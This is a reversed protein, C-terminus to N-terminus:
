RGYDLLDAWCSPVAEPGGQFPVYVRVQERARTLAVYLLRAEERATESNDRDWLSREEASVNSFNTGLDSAGVWEWILRPRQSIHRLVAVRTGARKPAEFPTWSNPVLVRDFELGKAKHVTLAVTKGRLQALEVPEDENNNTAIQLQLWTLMRQLSVPRSEFHSDLLTIVHDFCRAYRNRESAGSDSALQTSEPALARACEVLWAMVPMKNQLESISTLRLRLQELDSRDYTGTPEISGLRDRWGKIPPVCSQWEPGAVGRPAEGKLLGAAWRTECLQLLAADDSPDAVARLFAALERVAPSKFFSGGVLLECYGGTREIEMKVKIAQGNQRCLIAITADPAEGRWKAVDEAARGEFNRKSVRSFEIRQSADTEWTVPRLRDSQSYVLHNTLGWKEFYPHISNLLRAGSRFNRSLPNEQFENLGRVEIQAKLQHFADGEAGRFRYIGQKADGVVFLRAGLRVKIELILAMQLADTDQFEDVFLYRPRRVDPETQNRLAAMALPVLDSSRVSQSELCLARYQASVEGIVSRTAEEVDGEIGGSGTGGWDVATIVDPQGALPMMEVGNNELATWIAEFHDEWLHSAPVNTSYADIMRTLYPSVSEHLMSRLDLTQRSVRMGPGLGLGGGASQLLGKAFAHITAIEASSLQMLWALAPLVCRRCLRQRLMITHGIRERMQRAAERTFTMLVVDDARLDFPRTVGNEQPEDTGGCTALLYVLRESMTETKGTGAGATILLDSNARAHVIRYQGVNIGGIEDAKDLAGQLGAPMPDPFAGDVVWIHDDLDVVDGIVAWELLRSERFARLEDPDFSLEPERESILFVRIGYHLLGLLDEANVGDLGVRLVSYRPLAPVGLVRCLVDLGLTKDGDLLMSSPGPPLQQDPLPTGDVLGSTRFRREIPALSSTGIPDMEGELPLLDIIASGLDVEPGPIVEMAAAPWIWAPVPSGGRGFRTGQRGQVALDNVDGRLWRGHSTSTPGEYLVMWVRCETATAIAVYDEFAEQSTWHVREGTLQDFDSRSRFKIEWYEAVGAKTTQLDPARRRKGEIAILPARTGLTNGVAEGSHFVVFHQTQLWRSWAVECRRWAANEDELTAIM